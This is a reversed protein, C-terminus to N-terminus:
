THPLVAVQAKVNNYDLSFWDSGTWCTCATWCLDPACYASYRCVGLQLSIRLQKPQQHPCVKALMGTPSGWPPYMMWSTYRRGRLQPFKPLPDGTALLFVPVTRPCPPHAGNFLIM